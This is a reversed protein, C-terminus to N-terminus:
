VSKDAKWLMLALSDGPGPPWQHNSVLSVVDKETGARKLLLGGLEGHRAQVLLARRWPERIIALRSELDEGESWDTVKDIIRKLMSPSALEILTYLARHRRKLYPSRKGVDHLLAAKKLSPNNEVRRAVRISHALDYRRLSLLLTREKESLIAAERQARSRLAPDLSFLFTIFKGDLSSLEAM